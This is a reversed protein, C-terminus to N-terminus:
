VITNARNCNRHQAAFLRVPAGTVCVRKILIHGFFVTSLTIRIKFFGVGGKRDPREAVAVAPKACVSLTPNPEEFDLRCCSLAFFRSFGTVTTKRSFGNTITM